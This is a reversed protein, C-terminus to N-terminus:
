FYARFSGEVIGGAHPTLPRGGATVWAHYSLPNESVGVHYSVRKRKALLALATSYAAEACAIRGLFALKHTANLLREAEEPVADKTVWKEELYKLIPLKWSPMLKNIANGLTFATAATIMDGITSRKTESIAFKASGSVYGPSQPITPIRPESPEENTAEIMDNKQAELILSALKLTLNDVSIDPAMMAVVEAAKAISGYRDILRILQGWAPDSLTWFKMTQTNFLSVGGSEFAVCYVHSPIGYFADSDIRPSTINAESSREYTASPAGPGIVARQSARKGDSVQVDELSRLWHEVSVFRSLARYVGVSEAGSSKIYRMLTNHDILGSEVLRSGDLLEQLAPVSERMTASREQSYSGKSNRTLLGPPLIDFLALKLIKKYNYPDTKESAVVSSTARIVDTDLFPSHLDIGFGTSHAVYRLAAATNGASIIREAEQADTMTAYRYFLSGLGDELYDAIDHRAEPTLLTLGEPSPSWPLLCAIRPDYAERASKVGRLQSLQRVLVEEPTAHAFISAAAWFDIPRMNRSRAATLCQRLFNVDLVGNFRSIAPMSLVEDGGNGTLHVPGGGNAAIFNHYATLYIQATPDVVHGVGIDPHSGYLRVDESTFARLSRTDGLNAHGIGPHMDRFEQIYRRDDSNSADLVSSFTRLSGELGLACIVSAIATSDFGGSVDSSLTGYSDIRRQAAQILSTRLEEAAETLTNRKEIPDPQVLKAGLKDDVILTHGAELRRVGRLSSRGSLPLGDVGSVAFLAGAYLIDPEVTDNVKTPDSSACLGGNKNGYYIPTSSGRAQTMITRPHEGDNVVAIVSCNGPLESLSTAGNLDDRAHALAYMLDEETGLYHGMVFLSSKGDEIRRVNHQPWNGSLQLVKNGFESTDHVHATTRGRAAQRERDLSLFFSPCEREPFSM